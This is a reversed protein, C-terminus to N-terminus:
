VTLVTSVKPLLSNELNIFVKYIDDFAAIGGELACEFELDFGANDAEGVKHTDDHGNKHVVVAMFRVFQGNGGANIEKMIAFYLNKASNCGHIAKILM